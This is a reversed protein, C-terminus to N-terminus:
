CNPWYSLPRQEPAPIKRNALKALVKALRIDTESLQFNKDIRLTGANEYPSTADSIEAILKQRKKARDEKDLGELKKSYAVNVGVDRDM